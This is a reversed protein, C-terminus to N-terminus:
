LEIIKEEFVIGENELEELVPLYIEKITPLYLGRLQIKNELILKAAIGLPLGVTKAMATLSISIGKVILSSEVKYKKNNQHYEIEHFMIIMDKDTENLNLKEEMAVQLIDAASCFGKNIILPSTFGLYDIQNLFAATFNEQIISHRKCHLLFFDKYRLKNTEYVKEEDTLKIEVIKKWGKLFDVHRLTTRIFTNCNDLKYLPLYQLSNRNPYYGWVSEDSVLVTKDPNFLETYAITQQVNNELYVAGSKGALVINKPNWSIKYHWPNDDSEPAILGGCHSKFSIVNGESKKINDIIRMASMHDIGPDLGLEAIMLINADEIENKRLAIKEDLYSAKLLHAKFEICDNAVLYHMEPPLLSIVIKSQSILNRRQENDFVSLQVPKVWNHEGVKEKVLDIQNDAVLVKWKKEASIRKLYEILVTASKGAGIVLIHHM